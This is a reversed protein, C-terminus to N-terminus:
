SQRNKLLLRAKINFEAVTPCLQNRNQINKIWQKEEESFDSPIDIFVTVRMNGRKKSNTIPFGQGKLQIIHGTHTCAPLQFSVRGRLTPIEVSGGLIATTFPVPLDMLINDNQVTFLTHEKYIISVYLDEASKDNQNIKIKQNNKAGPPIRVSFSQTKIEKNQKVQLSINKTCGSVAEELSIKLQACTFDSDPASFKKFYNKLNKVSFIDKKDSINPESTHFNNKQQPPPAGQHSPYSPPYTFQEGFAQYANYSEYMPPPTNNKKQAKKKIQRDFDKRKFTDSLIQYAENIEKFVETAKPNNPNRDPHHIRALKQYSRKIASPSALPSVKLIEYYNKKNSM